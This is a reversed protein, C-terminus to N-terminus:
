LTLRMDVRHMGLGWGNDIESVVQAGYRAFFPASLHSAAIDLYSIKKDHALQMAYEMMKTGVGIGKFNASVLIWSLRASNDARTSSAEFTLGFASVLQDRELGVYYDAPPKRLFQIYDSRENIAFYEPCNQSFLELCQDFYCDSYRVFNM